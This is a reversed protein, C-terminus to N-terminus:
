MWESRFTRRLEESRSKEVAAETRQRIEGLEGNLRLAKVADAATRPDRADILSLLFDQSETSRLLGICLLLSERVGLEARRGWTSRLLNVM